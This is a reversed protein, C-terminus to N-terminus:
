RSIQSVFSAIEDKPIIEDGAVERLTGRVELLWINTFAEVWLTIRLDVM